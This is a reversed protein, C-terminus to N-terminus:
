QDVLGQIRRAEEYDTKVSELEKQLHHIQANYDDLIQASQTLM